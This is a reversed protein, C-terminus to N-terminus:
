RATFGDAPAKARGYEAKISQHLDAVDQGASKAMAKRERLQHRGALELSLKESGLLNFMERMGADPKEQRLAKILFLTARIRDFPGGEFLADREAQQRNFLNTWRAETRGRLVALRKTLAAEAEPNRAITSASLSDDSRPASSRDRSKAM